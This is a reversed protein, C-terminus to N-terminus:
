SRIEKLKRKLIAEILRFFDHQYNHLHQFLSRSDFNYKQALLYINLLTDVLAEENDTMRILDLLNIVPEIFNEKHTVTQCSPQVALQVAEELLWRAAQHQKNDQLLRALPRNLRVDAPINEQLSVLSDVMPSTSQDQQVLSDAYYGFLGATSPEKIISELACETMIKIGDQVATRFQNIMNLKRYYYAVRYLYTINRPEDKLGARVAKLRSQLYKQYLEDRPYQIEVRNILRGGKLNFEDLVPDYSDSLSKRLLVPRYFYNDSGAQCYEPVLFFDDKATSLERLLESLDEISLLQAPNLKLIWESDAQKFVEEWAQSATTTPRLEIVTADFERAVRQTGDDSDRDAIIVNIMLNTMSHLTAPIVAVDNQTVICVTLNTGSDKM